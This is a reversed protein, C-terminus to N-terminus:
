QSSTALLALAEDLATRVIAHEAGAFTAQSKLRRLLPAGAPIPLTACLRIALAQLHEPLNYQLPATARAAADADIWSLVLRHLQDREEARLGAAYRIVEAEADLVGRRGFGIRDYRKLIRQLDLNVVLLDGEERAERSFGEGVRRFADM